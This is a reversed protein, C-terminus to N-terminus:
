SKATGSRPVSVMVAQDVLLEDLRVQRRRKGIRIADHQLCVAEPQAPFAPRYREVHRENQFRFGISSQEHLM